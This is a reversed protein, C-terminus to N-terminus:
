KSNGPMIIISAIELKYMRRMSLVKMHDEESKIM